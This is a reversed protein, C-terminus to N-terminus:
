CSILGQLYLTENIKQQSLLKETNQVRSLECVTVGFGILWVIKQFFAFLDKQHDSM